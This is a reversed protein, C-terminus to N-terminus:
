NSIMLPNFQLIQVGRRIVEQAQSPVSEEYVGVGHRYSIDVTEVNQPPPAPPPCDTEVVTSRGPTLPTQPEYRKAFKETFGEKNGNVQPIPLVPMGPLPAFLSIGGPSNSTAPLIITRNSSVTYLVFFVVVILSLFLIGSSIMKNNPTLFLIYLSVFSPVSIIRDSM